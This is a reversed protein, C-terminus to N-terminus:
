RLGDQKLDDRIGVIDGVYGGAFPTRVVALIAARRPLSGVVGHFIKEVLTLRKHLKVSPM